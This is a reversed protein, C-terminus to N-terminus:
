IKQVARWLSEELFYLLSSNEMNELCSRLLVTDAIYQKKWGENGTILHMDSLNDIRDAIKVIAFPTGAITAYHKKVNDWNGKTEPPKTLVKVGEVVHDGFHGLEAVTVKTDELIDHFLAVRMGDVFKADPDSAVFKRLFSNTDPILQGILLNVARAVRIPHCIYPSGHKRFQGLHANRAFELTEKLEPFDGVFDEVIQDTKSELM